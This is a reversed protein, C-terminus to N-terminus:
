GEEGGKALVYKWSATNRRAGTKRETMTKEGQCLALRLDGQTSAVTIQNEWLGVRHNNQAM